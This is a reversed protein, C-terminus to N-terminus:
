ELLANVVQRWLSFFLLRQPPLCHFVKKSLELIIRRENKCQISQRVCYMGKWREKLSGEGMRGVPGFQLLCIAFEGHWTWTSVLDVCVTEVNRRRWASRGEYVSQQPVCEKLVLLAPWFSNLLGGNLYFLTLVRSQILTKTANFNM